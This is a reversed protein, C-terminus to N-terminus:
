SSLLLFLRLEPDTNSTNSSELFRRHNAVIIAQMQIPIATVTKAHKLSFAAENIATNAGQGAVPVTIQPQPSIVAYDAKIGIGQFYFNDKNRQSFFHPETLLPAASM